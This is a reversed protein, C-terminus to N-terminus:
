SVNQRLAVSGTAVVARKSLAKELRVSEPSLVRDRVADFSAEVDGTGPNEVFGFRGAITAMESNNTHGLLADPQPVFGATVLLTYDQMSRLGRHIVSISEARQTTAAGRPTAKTKPLFHMQSVTTDTGDIETPPAIMMGDQSFAVKEGAATMAAAQEAKAALAELRAQGLEIGYGEALTQLQQAPNIETTAAAEVTEM